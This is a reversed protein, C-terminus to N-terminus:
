LEPFMNSDEFMEKMVDRQFELFVDAYKNITVTIDKHGLNRSLVVIKNESGKMNEIYRTAYTHRLSHQGNDPLNNKECIRKFASNVAATHIPQLNDRRIFLLGFENPIYNEIAEKFVKVLNPPMAITRVGAYTKTTKGVIAKSNLDKSITRNIHILRNDIDVDEVKLGNIEGMRMGTFLEIYLQPRYYGRTGGKPLYAKLAKLFKEQEKQTFANVKKDPKNSKPCIIKKNKMLNKEVIEDDKALNYATSLSTLMKRIDSNSYNDALTLLFANIQNVNVDIIPISSPASKEIIQISFLKRLYTSETIEKAKYKTCYYDKLLEVITANRHEYSLGMRLEYEKQKSICEELTNGCFTKRRKAGFEDTYSITNKYYKKGDDKDIITLSGSGNAARTRKKM